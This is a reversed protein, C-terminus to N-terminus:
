VRPMCLYHTVQITEGLPLSKVIHYSEGRASGHELLSAAGNSDSYRVNEASDSDYAVSADTHDLHFHAATDVLGAAIGVDVAAAVATEIQNREECDWARVGIVPRGGIDYDAPSPSAVSRAM